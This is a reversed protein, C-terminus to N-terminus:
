RTGGEDLLVPVDDLCEGSNSGGFCSRELEHEAAARRQAARVPQDPAHGLIDIKRM